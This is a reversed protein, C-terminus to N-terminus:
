SYRRLLHSRPAPPRPYNPCNLPTKHPYPNPQSSSILFFYTWVLYAPVVLHEIGVESKPFFSLSLFNQAWSVHGIQPEKPFSFFFPGSIGNM